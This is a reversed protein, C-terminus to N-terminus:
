SEAEGRDDLAGSRWLSRFSRPALAPLRRDQAPNLRAPLRLFGDRVLPRQLLRLLAAFFHLLRPRGLVFAAARELLRDSLPLLREQVEKSRWELLLRPIDIRTPCVELCAGCLSSAHPLACYSDLDFLAPSVIAGIPGSYPSGYAHGGAERYVPCVNLCAGCRICQLMEELSTGPLASRGNDLLVIHVERPGDADNERAPGTITTTYISLPQGTASRALLALWVAAEEWTPVVKELGLIAVHVPPLSTVMRGNGENTVLVVSGTEAVAVNGGSIGLDAALFRERLLRRAEATLRPIDDAPLQLGAEASLLEAVQQRTKHIAPGIIHFPSEGALQVLWEGLDTEVAEVDAHALARNLEIEESVMSKSKVALRTGHRRAIETVIRCAEGANRAWHVQAGAAVAQREFTELHHALRGLNAERISKLRDRLAEADPIEALAEDRATRFTHTAGAVARRLRADAIAKGARARFESFTASV